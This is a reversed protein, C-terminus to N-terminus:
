NETSVLMFLKQSVPSFFSNLFFLQLGVVKVFFCFLFLNFLGKAGFQLSYVGFVGQYRCALISQIIM